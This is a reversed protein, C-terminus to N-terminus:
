RYSKKNWYSNRYGSWFKQAINKMVFNQKKESYQNNQSEWSERKIPIMQYLPTGKPIIGEFGNKIYFPFNSNEAIQTLGDNDIIGSLFYFPLDNRNLPSTYLMSWGRPLEPMWQPHLTFEIPYFHKEIEINQKERHGMIAPTTPFNYEVSVGGDKTKHAKVYIDQWSEQIYGSGLSDAFPLCMKLTKNAENNSKIEPTATEFAPMNKYWDPFYLRSPKPAPVTFEALESVPNFKVVHM